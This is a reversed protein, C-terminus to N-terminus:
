KLDQAPLLFAVYVYVVPQGRTFFGAGCAVKEM